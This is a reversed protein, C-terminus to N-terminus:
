DNSVVPLFLREKLWRKHATSSPTPQAALSQGSTPVVCQGVLGISDAAFYGWEAAFPIDFSLLEILSQDEVKKYPEDINGNAIWGNIRDDPDDDLILLNVTVGAELYGLDILDHFGRAVSCNGRCQWIREPYDARRRTSVYTQEPIIEFRFPSFKKIILMDFGDALQYEPFGVGRIFGPGMYEVTPLDMEGNEDVPCLSLDVGYYHSPDTDTVTSTPVTPDPPTSAIVTATNSYQGTIATGTVTCTMMAGVALTNQPCSSTIDGVKDDFLTMDVLDINGTNSVIYTWTVTQGIGVLPGTPMDADEGNTHKELDISPEAPASPITYIYRVSINASSMTTFSLALNGAGTGSSIGQAQIPLEIMGSGQFLQLDATASLITTEAVNIDILQEFIAGSLGTFDIAGDFGTVPQSKSAKPVSESIPSGDPRHLNIVAGMSVVIITPQADLSELQASSDVAGSLVFEIQRLEGLATDFKPVSITTDWDTKTLPVADEYVIEEAFVSGASLWITVTIVAMITMLNLPLVRKM